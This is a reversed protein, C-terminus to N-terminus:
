KLGFGSMSDKIADPLKGKANEKRETWLDTLVDNLSKEAQIDAEKDSLPQLQANQREELAAEDMDKGEDVLQSLVSQAQGIASNIATMIAANTEQATAGTQINPIAVYTALPVGAISIGGLLAALNTQAVGAQGNSQSSIVMGAQSLQQSFTSKINNWKTENASKEKAFVSQMKEIRKTATTLQNNIRVGKRQCLNVERNARQFEYQLLLFGM